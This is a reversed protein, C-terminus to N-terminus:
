FVGQVQGGEITLVPNDVKPEGCGLLALLPLLLLSKKM